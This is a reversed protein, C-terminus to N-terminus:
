QAQIDKILITTYPQRHGRFRRYRKRRRKKFVVVKKAKGHAVIEAIVKAAAGVQAQTGDSTLLVRELTVMEGVTGPLKEVRVRDGPKVRYQKGGTEVVATVVGGPVGGTAVSSKGGKPGTVDSPTM